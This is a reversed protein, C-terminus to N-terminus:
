RLEKTMNFVRNTSSHPSWTISLSTNNFKVNVVEHHDMIYIPFAYAGIDELYLGIVFEDDISSIAKFALNFLIINILLIKITTSIHPM